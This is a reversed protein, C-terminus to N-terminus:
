SKYHIDLIELISIYNNRTATNYIMSQECTNLKDFYFMSWNLIELQNYKTAFICIGVLPMYKWERINYEPPLNDYLHKYKSFIYELIHLHGYKTLTYCSQYESVPRLDLGSEGIWIYTDLYGKKITEFYIGLYCPCPNNNNISVDLIYKLLHTHKVLSKSLKDSWIYGKSYRKAWDIISINTLHSYYM